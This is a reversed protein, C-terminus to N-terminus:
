GHPVDAASPVIIAELGCQSAARGLAQTVSERHHFNERWWPEATMRKESLRCRQRNQGDTLDLVRQLQVELCVLARPLATEDPLNKRRYAALRGLSWCAWFDKEVIEPALKKIAAAERVLDARDVESWTAIGEM